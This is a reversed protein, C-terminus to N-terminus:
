CDPALLTLLPSSGRLRGRYRVTALGAKVLRNITAWRQRRGIECRQLVAPTIPVDGRGTSKQVYLTHVVIAAGAGAITMARYGWDDELPVVAFKKRRAKRPKVGTDLTEVEIRRDHRMVYNMM